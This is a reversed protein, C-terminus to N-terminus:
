VRPPKVDLATPDRGSALPTVAVSPHNAPDIRLGQEAALLVRNALVASPDFFVGVDV